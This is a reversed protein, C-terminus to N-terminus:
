KSRRNLAHVVKQAQRGRAYHVNEFVDSIRPKYEPKLGLFKLLQKGPECHSECGECAEPKVGKYIVAM